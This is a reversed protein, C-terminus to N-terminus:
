NFCGAIAITVARGANALFAAVRECVGRQSDLRALEDSVEALERRLAGELVHVEARMSARLENLADLMEDRRPPGQLELFQARENASPTPSSPRTLDCLSSGTMTFASTFCLHSATLPFRHHLRFSVRHQRSQQLARDWVRSLRARLFAFSHAQEEVADMLVTLDNSTIDVQNLVQLLLQRDANSQARLESIEARLEDLQRAVRENEQQVLEALEGTVAAVMNQLGPDLPPTHDANHAVEPLTPRSGSSM